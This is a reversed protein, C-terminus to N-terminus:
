WKHLDFVFDCHGATVGYEVHNDARSDVQLRNEQQQSDESVENYRRLFWMKARSPAERSM